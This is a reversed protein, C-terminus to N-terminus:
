RLWAFRLLSQRYTWWVSTIHWLWHGYSWTTKMMSLESATTNHSNLRLKTRYTMPSCGKHRSWLRSQPKCSRRFFCIRSKQTATDSLVHCIRSYNVILCSIACPKLNTNIEIVKFSKSPGHLMLKGFDDSREPARQTLSVSHRYVYLM